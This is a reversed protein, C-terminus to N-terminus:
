WSCLGFDNVKLKGDESGVPDIALMGRPVPEAVARDPVTTTGEPVAMAEALEAEMPVVSFFDFLLLEEALVLTAAEVAAIVAEAPQVKVSASEAIADLADHEEMTSLPMVTGASVVRSMVSRASPVVTVNSPVVVNSYASHSPGRILKEPFSIVMVPALPWTM